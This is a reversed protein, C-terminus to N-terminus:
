TLNNDVCVDRPDSRGVEIFPIMSFRTIYKVKKAFMSLPSKNPYPKIVNEM